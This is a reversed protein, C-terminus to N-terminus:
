DKKKVKTKGNLQDFLEDFKKDINERSVDELVSKMPEDSKIM